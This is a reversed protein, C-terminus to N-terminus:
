IYLLRERSLLSVGTGIYFRPAQLNVPMGNRVFSVSKLCGCSCPPEFIVPVSKHTFLVTVTGTMDSGGQIDPLHSESFASVMM